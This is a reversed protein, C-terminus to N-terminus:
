TVWYYTSNRYIYVICNEMPVGKVALVVKVIIKQLSNYGLISLHCACRKKKNLPWLMPSHPM